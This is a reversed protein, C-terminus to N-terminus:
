LVESPLTEPVRRMVAKAGGVEGVGEAVAEAM